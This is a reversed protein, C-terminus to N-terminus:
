YAPITVRHCPMLGMLATPLQLTTHVLLVALKPVPEVCGAPMQRDCAATTHSTVCSGSSGTYTVRRSGRELWTFCVRSLSTTTLQGVGKSWLCAWRLWHDKKGGCFLPTPMRYVPTAILPSLTITPPVLPLPLVPSSTPWVLLPASALASLPVLTRSPTTAVTSVSANMKFM